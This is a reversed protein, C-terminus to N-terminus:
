RREGAPEFKILRSGQYTLRGASGESLRRYQRRGMWLEVQTGDELGFAAYYNRIRTKLYKQSGQWSDEQRRASVVAGATRRPASYDADLRLARKLVWAAALAALGVALLFMALEAVRGGGAIWM